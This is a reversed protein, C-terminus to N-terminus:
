TGLVIGMTKGRKKEVALSLFYSYKSCQKKLICLALNIKLVSKL